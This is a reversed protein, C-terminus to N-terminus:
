EGADSGPSRRASVMGAEASGGSDPRVVEYDEGLGSIETSAGGPQAPIREFGDDSEPPSLLGMPRSTSNDVESSTDTPTDSGFPHRVGPMSGRMSMSAPGWATNGFGIGAGLNQLNRSRATDLEYDSDPAASLVPSPMAPTPPSYSPLRDSDPTSSPASCATLVNPLTSPGANSSPSM